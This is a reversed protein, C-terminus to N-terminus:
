QPNRSRTQRHGRSELIWNMLGGGEGSAKLTFVSGAVSAAMMMATTVWMELGTCPGEVLAFCWGPLAHM